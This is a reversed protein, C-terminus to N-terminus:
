DRAWWGELVKKDKTEWYKKLTKYICGFANNKQMGIRWYKQTKLKM